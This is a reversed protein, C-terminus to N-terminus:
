RNNYMAFVLDGTAGGNNSYSPQTNQPIVPTATRLQGDHKGMRIQEYKRIARKTGEIASSGVLAGVGVASFKLDGMNSFSLPEKPMKIASRGLAAVGGLMGTATGAIGVAGIAGAAAVGPIASAATAGVAATGAVALGDNRGDANALTYGLAAAGGVHAALRVPSNLGQYLVGKGGFGVAKGIDTATNAAFKATGVGMSVAGKATAKASAKLGKEIAGGIASGITWSM